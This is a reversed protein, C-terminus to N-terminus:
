DNGLWDAGLLRTDWPGRKITLRVPNIFELELTTVFGPLIIVKHLHEMDFVIGGCDLAMRSPLTNSWEIEKVPIHDPVWLRGRGSRGSRSLFQTVMYDPLGLEGLVRYLRDCESQALWWIAYSGTYKDM